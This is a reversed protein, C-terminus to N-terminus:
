NWHCPSPTCVPVLSPASLLISRRAAAHAAQLLGACLDALWDILRGEEGKGSLDLYDLVRAVCKPVWRLECESFAVKM